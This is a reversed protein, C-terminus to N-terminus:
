SPRVGGMIIDDDEESPKYDDDEEVVKIYNSGQTNNFIIKQSSSAGEFEGMDFEGSFPDAIGAPNSEDALGESKIEKIIEAINPQSSQKIEEIVEEM